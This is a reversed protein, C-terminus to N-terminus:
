FIVNFVVQKWEIYNVINVITAVPGLIFSCVTELNLREMKNEVCGILKACEVKSVMGDRIFKAHM